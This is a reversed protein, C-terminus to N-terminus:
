DEIPFVKRPQIWTGTARHELDALAILHGNRSMLQIRGPEEPPAELLQKPNIQNGSLVLRLGDGNLVAVPLDLAEGMPILREEVDGPETLADLPVADAIDFNGVETRRLSSLIAGCGFDKGIDHCLSRVYTGSTCSLTFRAKPLELADLTFDFVTVERSPREVEEGKRALKYLRQGGVKVASVMPPIQDFTGTYKEMCARLEEETIEPVEHEELVKGDADYSDSVLGFTMEGTYVKEMGTLYDSLRTAAGICLVLLGTAGPDLTGTHGVKKTKGVKRVRAVVDHSTMGTPKDVLLLGNMAM